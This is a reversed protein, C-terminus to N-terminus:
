SRTLFWSWSSFPAVLSIASWSLLRSSGRLLPSSLTLNTCRGHRGRQQGSPFGAATGFTSCARAKLPFVPEPKWYTPLPPWKALDLRNFECASPVRVLQCALLPQARSGHGDKRLSKKGATCYAMARVFRRATRTLRVDYHM